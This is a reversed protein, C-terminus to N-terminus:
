ISQFSCTSTLTKDATIAQDYYSATFTNTTRNVQFLWYAYDSISAQGQIMEAMIFVPASDYGSRNATFFGTASYQQTQSSFITVQGQTYIAGNSLIQLTYHLSFGGSGVNNFGMQYAQTRTKEIHCTYLGTIVATGTPGQPGVDGQDGKEGPAGNAGTEGRDGAEGSEGKEGKDGKEGRQGAAGATGTAGREGAAGTEGQDGKAGTDGKEGKAGKSGELDIATWEGAISCYFFSKEDEVYVLKKANEEDCVPLDDATLYQEATRNQPKPVAKEAEKDAGKSTDSGKDATEPEKTTEGPQTNCGVTTSGDASKTQTCENPEMRGCASLVLLSLVLKKM